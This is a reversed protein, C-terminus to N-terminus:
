SQVLVQGAYHLCLRDHAEGAHIVCPLQTHLYCSQTLVGEVPLHLMTCALRIVVRPVNVKGIAHGAAQKCSSRIPVVCVGM